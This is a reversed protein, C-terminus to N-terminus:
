FQKQGENGSVSFLIYLLVIYTKLLLHPRRPTQVLGTRRGKWERHGGRGRARCSRRGEGEKHRGIGKWIPLACSPLLCLLAHPAPPCSSYSPLLFPLAPPPPPCSSHTHMFLSLLSPTTPYPHPLASAAPVCGEHTIDSM